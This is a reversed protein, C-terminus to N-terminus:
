MLVVNSFSNFEVSKMIDIPVKSKDIKQQMWTPIIKDRDSLNTSSHKEFDYRRSKTKPNV